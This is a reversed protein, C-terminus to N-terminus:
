ERVYSIEKIHDLIIEIERLEYIDIKEIVLLEHILLSITHIMGDIYQDNAPIVGDVNEIREKIKDIVNLIAQIM